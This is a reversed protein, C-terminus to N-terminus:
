SYYAVFEHMQKVINLILDPFMLLLTLLGVGIRFSMGFSMLNFQPSQKMVFLMTILILIFVVTLPGAIALGKEPLETLMRIVPEAKPFRWLHGVRFERFFADFLRLFSHHLCLTLLLLAALAELAVSLVSGSGTDTATTTSAMTLGIQEALWSGAIRVPVLINSLLWGLGAGLIIERSGLWTWLAWSDRNPSSMLTVHEIAEDATASSTHTPVPHFVKPVWFATLAVVLGVKVLTPVSRGAFPPLFTVFASVRLLCLIVPMVFVANM